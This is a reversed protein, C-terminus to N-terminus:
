AATESSFTDSKRQSRFRREREGKVEAGRAATASNQYIPYIKNLAALFETCKNRDRM